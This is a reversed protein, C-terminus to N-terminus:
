NNGHKGNIANDNDHTRKVGDRSKKIRHHEAIGSRDGRKGTGFLLYKKNRDGTFFSIKTSTKKSSETHNSGRIGTINKTRYYWNTDTFITSHCESYRAYIGDKKERSLIVPPM